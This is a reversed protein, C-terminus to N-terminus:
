LNTRELITERIFNMAIEGSDDFQKILGYEEATDVNEDKVDLQDNSKVFQIILDLRENKAGRLEHLECNTKGNDDKDIKIAIGIDNKILVFDRERSVDATWRDDDLNNMQKLFNVYNM